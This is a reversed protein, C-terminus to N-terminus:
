YIKSIRRCIELLLDVKSRELEKAAYFRHLNRSLYTKRELELERSDTIHLSLNEETGFDKIAQDIYALSLDELETKLSKITEFYIRDKM